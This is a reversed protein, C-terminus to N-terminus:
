EPQSAYRPEAPQVVSPRSLVEPDCKVARGTHAALVSPHEQLALVASM